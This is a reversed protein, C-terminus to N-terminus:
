FTGYNHFYLKAIITANEGYNVMLTQYCDNFKQSHKVCTHFFDLGKSLKEEIHPVKGSEVLLNHINNNRELVALSNNKIFMDSVLQTTHMSFNYNIYQDFWENNHLIKGIFESTKKEYKNRNCTLFINKFTISNDIIEFHANSHELIKKKIEKSLFIESKNFDNNLQITTIKVYRVIFFNFKQKNNTCKIANLKWIQFISRNM